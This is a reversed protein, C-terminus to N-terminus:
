YLPCFMRHSGAGVGAGAGFSGVSFDLVDNLQKKKEEEQFFAFFVKCQMM